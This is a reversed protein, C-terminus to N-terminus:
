KKSRPYFNHTKQLFKLLTSLTDLRPIYQKLPNDQLRQELEKYKKDVDAFVNNAAISDIKQLKRKMMAEQKAMQQLAKMTKKDLKNELSAAKSSVKDLYKSPLQQLPTITNEQANLGTFAHLFITFITLHFRM